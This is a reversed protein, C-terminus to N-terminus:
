SALIYLSQAAQWVEATEDPISDAMKPEEAPEAGTAFLAAALFCV